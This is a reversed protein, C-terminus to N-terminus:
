PPNDGRTAAHDDAPLTAVPPQGRPRRVEGTRQDLDAVHFRAFYVAWLGDTPTPRLGLSQGGLAESTKYTRGQFSMQGVPNVRRARDGALAGQM